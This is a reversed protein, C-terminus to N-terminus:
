IENVLSELFNDLCIKKLFINGKQRWTSHTSINKDAYRKTSKCLCTFDFTRGIQERIKESERTVNGSLDRNGGARHIFIYKTIDYLLM